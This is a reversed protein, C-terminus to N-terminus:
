RLLPRALFQVVPHFLHNLSAVAFYKGEEIPETFNSCHIKWSLRATMKTTTNIEAKSLRSEITCAFHQKERVVHGNSPNHCGFISGQLTLQIEIRSNKGCVRGSSMMTTSTAKKILTSDAVPESFNRCRIKWIATM